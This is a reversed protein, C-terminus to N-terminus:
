QNRISILSALFSQQSHMIQQTPRSLLRRWNPYEKDTGPINVPLVQQDLDDIQITFLRAPAAALCCALAQYVVSAETDLTLQQSTERMIFNLMRQKEIKRAELLANSQAEDILSYQQKVTIDHGTWWGNFPPVDHNAIMLLSHPAFHESALFEGNHDKEFYFLGNSYIASSKLADRVETPVVGLDEGIVVCQNLHSEIKLIALLHEFPYYVYCGDQQGQNDFCWWLRRIAMVHDIRLGGVDEMNARILSRYFAFNDKSLKQPNLAPLGWNQGQEAWPDPPAGVNAGHSFLEDQSRYESGDGACGVALDNILGIDMGCENAIQQCLNLQLHAQWQLYSAYENDGVVLTALSHKHTLCFAEFQAKREVSATERFHHYLCSFLQYKFDSVSTYDIYTDTGQPKENLLKELALNDKADECLSLAIYLPNLLARSNPSYPSAREPSHEFLLHLPNLLIYDMGNAAAERMLSALDAFDGIGLGHANFLSYLQISVGLRKKDDVTFCQKPMIWLESHAEQDAVTIVADHYGIPMDPLPLAVELYRIDNFRYDGTVSLEHLNERSVVIDLSPLRLECGRSLLREDVRVRLFPEDSEVLSVNPLLTLWTGADLAFNLQNITDTDTCDIGCCSLASRRTSEDFVVHEGTYKTYEYGIGHLYFLQALSQM